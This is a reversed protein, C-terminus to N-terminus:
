NSTYDFHWCCFFFHKIDIQSTLIDFIHQAVLAITPFKNKQKRWWSLACKYNDADVFYQHYGILKRSVLDRYTNVNMITTFVLNKSNVQTVLNEFKAGNSLVLLKRVKILLRLIIEDDYEAVLAVVNEQGLYMTVLQMNKFCPDLMLVLM